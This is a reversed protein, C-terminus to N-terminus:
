GSAWSVAVPCEPLLFVGVVRAPREQVERESRTSWDSMFEEYPRARVREREKDMESLGGGGGWGEAGRSKERSNRGKVDGALEEQPKCELQVNTPGDAQKSVTAVSSKQTSFEHVNAWDDCVTTNVHISIFAM